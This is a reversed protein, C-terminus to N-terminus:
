LLENGQWLKVFSLLVSGELVPGRRNLGQGPLWPPIGVEPGLRTPKEAPNTVRPRCRWRWRRM